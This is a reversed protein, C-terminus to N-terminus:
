FTRIIQGQKLRGQHCFLIILGRSVILRESAARGGARGGAQETGMISSVKTGNDIKKKSTVESRLPHSRDSVGLQSGSSDSRDTIPILISAMDRLIEPLADIIRFRLSKWSGPCAKQFVWPYGFNASRRGVNRTSM